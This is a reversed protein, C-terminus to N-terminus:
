RKDSPYRLFLISLKSLNWTSVSTSAARPYRLFLISLVQAFAGRIRAVINDNAM